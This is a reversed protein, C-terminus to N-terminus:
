APASLFSFDLELEIRQFHLKSSGLILSFPLIHNHLLKINQLCSALAKNSIPVCLMLHRESYFNREIEFQNSQRPKVMAMNQVSNSHSPWVPVGEM